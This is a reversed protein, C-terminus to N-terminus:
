TCSVGRVVQLPAELERLSEQGACLVITDVELVTAKEHKEGFSVALGGAVVGEYNVGAMMEVRKMKLAARHIWGTTKGLGAGPKSKKRQLLYIERAPPAPEPKVGAVGGRFSAPDAVGWEKRWAGIDLSPSHGDHVLFEAVDFGIGGPM